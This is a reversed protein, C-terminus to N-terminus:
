ADTVYRSFTSNTDQSFNRAPCKGDFSLRPVKGKTLSGDEHISTCEKRNQKHLGKSDATVRLRRRWSRRGANPTNESRWRHIRCLGRVRLVHFDHPISNM